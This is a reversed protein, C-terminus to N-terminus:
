SLDPRSSVLALRHRPLLALQYLLVHLEDHRVHGAGVLLLQPVVLGLGGLGGLHGLGEGALDLLGGM